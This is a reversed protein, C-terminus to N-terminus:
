SEYTSATYAVADYYRVVIMGTSCSIGNLTKIYYLYTKEMGVLNLKGVAKHPMHICM